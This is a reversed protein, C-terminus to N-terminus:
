APLQADYRRATVSGAWVRGRGQRAPRRWRSHQWVDRTGGNEGVSDCPTVRHAAPDRSERQQHDARTTGAPGGRRGSGGSRGCLRLEADTGGAIGLNLRVHALNLRLVQLLHERVDVFVDVLVDHVELFPDALRADRVAAFTDGLAGLHHLSEELLEAALLRADVVDADGFPARGAVRDDVRPAVFARRLGHRDVPLVVRHRDRLGVDPLRRRELRPNDLLRRVLLDEDSAAGRVRLPRLHRLQVGQHRDLRDGALQRPVDHEDRFAVLLAHVDADALEDLIM